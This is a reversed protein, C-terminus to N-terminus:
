TAEYNLTKIKANIQDRIDPYSDELLELSKKYAAYAATKNGMRFYVDALNEYTVARDPELELAKNLYTIAEESHGIQNLYWGKNHYITAYDPEVEIGKDFDALAAMLNGGSDIRCLARDNYAAGDHPNYRIADDLCRIAAAFDEGLIAHQARFYMIEGLNEEEVARELGIDAIARARITEGFTIAYDLQRRLETYMM